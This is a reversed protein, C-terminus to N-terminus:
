GSGGLLVPNRAIDFAESDSLLVRYSRTARFRTPKNTLPNCIVWYSGTAKWLPGLLVAIIDLIFRM